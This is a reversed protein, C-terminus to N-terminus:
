RRGPSPMLAPRPHLDPRVPAPFAARMRAVAAAPDMLHHHVFRELHVGARGLADARVKEAYLADDRFGEHRRESGQDPRYKAKGDYEAGVRYGLRRGDPSDQVRMLWGVDLYKVGQDTPVRMQTIPEPLGRALAIYRLISEGPSESLPDAHTLIARASVLGRRGPSEELREMLGARVAVLRIAHREPHDRRPNLLIRLLSDVAALARDPQLALACDIMTREFSTVPLGHIEVVDGNRLWPAHHRRLDSGRVINPSSWQSIHVLDDPHDIWGGHLLVATEHSFAFRCSLQAAVAACRALTLHDAREWSAGSESTRVLAGRRVRTHAGGRHFTALNEAGREHALVVEPPTPPGPLTSMEGGNVVNTGDVLQASRDPSLKAYRSDTCSCGFGRSGDRGGGQGAQALPNRTVWLM